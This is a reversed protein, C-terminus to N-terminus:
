QTAFAQSVVNGAYITGLNQAFQDPTFPQSKTTTSSTQYLLANVAGAPTGGDKVYRQFTAYIASAISADLTSGTVKNVTDVFQKETPPTKSSFWGSPSLTKVAEMLKPASNTLEGGVIGALHTAMDTASQQGLLVTNPNNAGVIALHAFQKIADELVRKKTSGTIGTGTGNTPTPDNPQSAYKLVDNAYTQIINVPQIDPELSAFDQVTRVLDIGNMTKSGDWGWYKEVSQGQNILGTQAQNKLPDTIAAAHAQLIQEEYLRAQQAKLPAGDVATYMDSLAQSYMAYQSSTIANANTLDKQYANLATSYQNTVNDLEAQHQNVADTLYGIYSQNQRGRLTYLYNLQANAKQANLPNSMASSSMSNAVFDSINKDTQNIYQDRATIYATVNQPLVAGEARLTNQTDQLGSINYKDWLTKQNNAEAEGMTLGHTIPNNPDIIQNYTFMGAGTSNQVSQDATASLGSYKSTFGSGSGSGSASGSNPSYVNMLDALTAYKGGNYKAQLDAQLANWGDQVNSFKAYFGGDSAADGKVAGAQGLFKLNGPNNDNVAIKSAGSTFGENQAIAKMLDPIQISSLPTSPSVKLINAVNNAANGVSSGTSPANPDGMSTSSGLIKTPTTAPSTANQNNNTAVPAGTGASAYPRGWQDYGPHSTPTQPKQGTISGLLSSFGAGIKDFADSGDGVANIIDQRDYGDKVLMERIATNTQGYPDVGGPAFINKLQTVRQSIPSLQPHPGLAPATVQSNNQTTPPTPTSQHNISPFSAPTPSNQYSVQGNPDRYAPGNATSMNPTFPTPSALNYPNSTSFASMNFPSDGPGGAGDKAKPTGGYNINPTPIKHFVVMGKSNSGNVQIPDMNPAPYQGNTQQDYMMGPGGSGDHASQLKSMISFIKRAKQRSTSGLPSNMAEKILKSTDPSRMMSKLIQSKSSKPTFDTM